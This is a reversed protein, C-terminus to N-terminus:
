HAMAKIKLADAINGWQSMNIRSMRLKGKEKIADSDKKERDRRQSLLAYTHTDTTATM